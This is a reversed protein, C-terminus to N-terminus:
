YGVKKRSVPKELGLVFSFIIKPWKQEITQQAMVMNFLPNLSSKKRYEIQVMPM